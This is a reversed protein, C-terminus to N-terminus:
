IEANYAKHWMLMIADWSVMLEVVGQQQGMIVEDFPFM